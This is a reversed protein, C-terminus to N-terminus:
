NGNKNVSDTDEGNWAPGESIFDGIQVSISDDLLYSAMDEEPSDSPVDAGIGNGSSVPSESVGGNKLLENEADGAAANESKEENEAKEAVALAEADVPLGAPSDKQEIIYAEDAAQIKKKLKRRRVALTIIIVLIGACVVGGLIYIALRFTEGDLEGVPGTSEKPSGAAKSETEGTKASSATDKAGKSETKKAGDLEKKYKAANEKTMLLNGVRQGNFRYIWNVM